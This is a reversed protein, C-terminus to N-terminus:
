KDVKFIGAHGPIIYDALKLIKERSQKLKKPEDAYSDSEPFYKKWFVDGCIAVNGKETKVLMTLSTKDHGPTKIIRIDESFQEKWDEVTNKNWLGYFELTKANPFMGINRYHDIHSHTIFVLSIDKIGLNEKKLADVLMQQSELVGPDVVIIIDKDKVLTITPCTKEKGSEEKSDASTYGEILVKVEAM